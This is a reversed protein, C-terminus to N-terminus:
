GCVVEGSEFAYVVSASPKEAKERKPKTRRETPFHLHFYPHNQRVNHFAILVMKRVMTHYLM